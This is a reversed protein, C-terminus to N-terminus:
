DFYMNELMKTIDPAKFTKTNIPLVIAKSNSIKQQIYDTAYSQINSKINEYLDKDILIAVLNTSTTTNEAVVKKRDVFFVSNLIYSVGYIILFIRIGFNKKSQDMNKNKKVAKRHLIVDVCFIQKQKQM